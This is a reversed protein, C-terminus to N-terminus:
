PRAPDPPGLSRYIRHVVERTIMLAVVLLMVDLFSGLDVHEGFVFDITELIVFKSLFLIAWVGLVGAVTYIRGEKERSWAWVRYKAATIGVLILKLVVATFISITFSDIVKNPSYEVYLNLIVIYVLVDSLWSVYVRQRHSMATSEGAEVDIVSDNADDM